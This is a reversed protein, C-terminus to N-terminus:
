EDENLVPVPVPNPEAQTMEKAMGEAIRVIDRLYKAGEALGGAWYELQRKAAGKTASHRALRVVASIMAASLSVHQARDIERGGCTVTTVLTGGEGWIAKIDVVGPANKAVANALATITRGIEEQADLAMTSVEDLTNVGFLVDMADEWDDLEVIRGLDVDSMGDRKLTPGVKSAQASTGRDGAPEAASGGGGVTSDLKQWRGTPMEGVNPTRPSIEGGTDADDERGAMDRDDDPNRAAIPVCSERRDERAEKRRQRSKSKAKNTRGM